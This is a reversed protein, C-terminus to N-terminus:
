VSIGRALFGGDVALTQGTVFSAAPSALYLAAGVLEELEGYRDMPTHDLFKQGRPTGPILHRNLHTIFMGPAISNVRIGYRAWEDALSRTLAVVAAKSCTYPLVEALTSLAALSSITIINGGGQAVMRRGAEQCVLFTGTLNTSIVQDWDELSLELSPSRRTIGAVALVTDIRPYRDYLTAFAAQVSAKDTVDITVGDCSGGGLARLEEVAKDVRSAERGAIIVTAGARAFGGALVHGIGMTGGVVFCVQGAVDFGSYIAM